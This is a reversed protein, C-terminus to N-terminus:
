SPNTVSSSDVADDEGGSKDAGKDAWAKKIQTLESEAKLAREKWHGILVDCAELINNM